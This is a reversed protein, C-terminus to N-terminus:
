LASSTPTPTPLLNAFPNPASPSQGQTPNLVQKSGDPYTITVFKDGATTDMSLTGLTDGSVTSKVTGTLLAGYKGSADKKPVVTGEIKFKQTTNELTFTVKSNAENAADNAVTIEDTWNQTGM